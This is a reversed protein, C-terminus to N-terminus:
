DNTTSLSETKSHFSVFSRASARNSPPFVASITSLLACPIVDSGTTTLFRGYSPAVPLSPYMTIGVSTSAYRTPLLGKTNLPVFPKTIVTSMLELVFHLERDSNRFILGHEAPEVIGSSRDRVSGYRNNGLSGSVIGPPAAAFSTGGVSPWSKPIQAVLLSIDLSPATSIFCHALLVPTRM